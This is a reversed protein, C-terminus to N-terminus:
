SVRFSAQTGLWTGLWQTAHPGSHTPGPTSYQQRLHPPSCSPSGPASGPATPALGTKGKLEGEWDRVPVQRGEPQQSASRSMEAQERRGHRLLAQFYFCTAQTLQASHTHLTNPQSPPRYISFGQGSYNCTHPGSSSNGLSVNHYPSCHGWFRTSCNQVSWLSLYGYSNEPQATAKSTHGTGLRRPAPVPGPHAQSAASLVGM